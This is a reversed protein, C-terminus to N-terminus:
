SSHDGVLLEVIKDSAKGDGYINSSWDVKFDGDIVRYYADLIRSKNAGCLVNAGIEVTEVWETEERLTICPTEVFLAEKQVGGSDTLIVKANHELEIMQLYPLPELIKISDSIDINYNEIFKRTRPHLAVLVPIQKSIEKFSDFIQRLSQPSDTNEARHVTALAFGKRQVGFPLVSSTELRARYYQMCDYMVDGVNKVGETIGERELNTVATKTPCFLLTSVHDTLVRNIEEPMRRNYSRLGAEVHAIPIHMKSAALAGAITSNTDGYVLVWDPQEKRLVEEIGKLMDATQQAHSGSGVHLNYDPQPIGLEKFFVESMNHDYHQGTHIIVEALSKKSNLNNFARSVAAAKIFQPRAGVITVVKM